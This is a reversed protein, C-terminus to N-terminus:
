SSVEEHNIETVPYKAYFEPHTSGLVNDLENLSVAPQFTIRKPGLKVFEIPVDRFDDIKKM